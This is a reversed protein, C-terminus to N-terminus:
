KLKIKKFLYSAYYRVTIILAMIIGKVGRITNFVELALDHIQRISYSYGRGYSIKIQSQGYLDTAALTLKSILQLKLPIDEGWSLSRIKYIKKLIETRYLTNSQNWGLIYSRPYGICEIVHQFLGNGSKIIVKKNTNKNNILEIKNVYYSRFTIADIFPKSVLFDIGYEIAKESIYDDSDLFFCFQTQVQLLGVHRAHSPGNNKTYIYDCSYTKCLEKNKKAESPESGDDIVFVTCSSYKHILSLVYGLENSSNFTPIIISVINNKKM